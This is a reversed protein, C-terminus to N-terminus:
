ALWEFITLPERGVLGLCSNASMLMMRIEMVDCRWLVSKPLSKRISKKYWTSAWSNEIM